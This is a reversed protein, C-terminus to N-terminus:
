GISGPKWAPRVEAVPRVGRPVAKRVAPGDITEVLGQGGTTVLPGLVVRGVIGVARAVRGVTTAGPLIPDVVPAAAPAAPLRRDAQAM